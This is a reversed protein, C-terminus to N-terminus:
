THTNAVCIPFAIKLIYIAVATLLIVFISLSFFFTFGISTIFFLNLVVLLIM